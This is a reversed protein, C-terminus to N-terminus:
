KWFQWWKRAPQPKPAANREPNGGEREFAIVVCSCNDHSDQELALSVLQEACENPDPYAGCVELLQEQSVVNTIGDTALVLRDGNRPTFSPIEVPQLKEQTGLYQWLMNTVNYETAKDAPIVGNRVLANRLDHEWTLKEVRGNSVRYAPSDGQWAVHAVGRHLLALVITTGCGRYKRHSRGVELVAEHGARLAREILPRPKEGNDIGERMADRVAEAGAQSALEGAALGGMGDLVMAFPYDADVHVADENNERYNGVDSASGTKAMLGFALDVWM